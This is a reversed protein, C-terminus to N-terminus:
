IAKSDGGSDQPRGGPKVGPVPLLIESLRKKAGIWNKKRSIAQPLPAEQPDNRVNVPDASVRLDIQYPCPALQSGPPPTFM